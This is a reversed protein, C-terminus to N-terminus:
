RWRRSRWAALASLLAALAAAEFLRDYGHHEALWGGGSAGLVGPIGYGISAYLAGGRGRLRDPFHQAVLAMCTSHHAAFTLAHAAQLLVIVATLAVAHISWASFVPLLAMLAFRLAAVGSALLLWGHLSLREFFRRQQWFFLVEAVVGVVWFLGVTGRAYGLHELYLSLGVALSMHALVMAIVSAFFWAVTPQRLVQLASPASPDAAALSVASAQAPMRWPLAAALAFLGLALPAFWALREGQLVWGGLGVSAIFGVSGWMRVRSYASADIRGDASQMQRLQAAEGLPVVGQQGAAQIVVCLALWAPHVGLLMGSAAIAAILSALRLLRVREGSHDGWWGWAYPAVLRSSSQLALLLGILTPTFGLSHWWVPAYVAMLGMAAYYSAWLVAFATMSPARASTM